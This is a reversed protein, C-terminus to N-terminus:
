IWAIVIFRRFCVEANLQLGLEKCLFTSLEATTEHTERASVLLATLSKLKGKAVFSSWLIEKSVVLLVIMHERVYSNTNKLEGLIQTVLTTAQESPVEASGLDRLVDKLLNFLDEFNDM